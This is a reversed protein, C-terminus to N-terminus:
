QILLDSFKFYMDLQVNLQSKNANIIFVPVEHQKWQAWADYINHLEVVYKEPINTQQGERKLIRTYCEHPDARLYIIADIEVQHHEVIYQYWAQLVAMEVKALKGSKLLHEAFVQIASHISREQVKLKTGVQCEHVQLMTLQVYSQFVFSWRRPNSYMLDLLNNGDLNTWKHVPEPIVTIDEFHELYKLLTTKGM